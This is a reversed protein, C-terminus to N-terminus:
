KLSLIYAVVNDTQEETLIFDPMYIHTSRLFVRLSMETTKPDAAVDRFARADPFLIVAEEPEVYHCEACNGRAFTLGEVSNGVMLETGFAVGAGATVALSALLFFVRPVVGIM